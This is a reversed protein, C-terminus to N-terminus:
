YDLHQARMHKLVFIIMFIMSFSAIIMYIEIFSIFFYCIMLISSLLVKLFLYDSTAASTFLVHQLNIYLWYYTVVFFIYKFPPLKEEFFGMRIAMYYCGIILITNICANLNIQALRSYRSIRVRKSIVSTFFIINYANGLIILPACLSTAIAYRVVEDDAYNKSVLLRDIALLLILLFSNLIYNRHKAILICVNALLSRLKLAKFNTKIIFVEIIIIGLFNALTISHIIKTEDLELQISLIIISTYVLASGLRCMILIRFKEMVKIFSLGTGFWILSIAFLIITFIGSYFHNFVLIVLTIALFIINSQASYRSLLYPKLASQTAIPITFIFLTGILSANALAVYYSAAVAVNGYLQLFLHAVYRLINEVILAM